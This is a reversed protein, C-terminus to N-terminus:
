QIHCVKFVISFMIHDPCINDSLRCKVHLLNVPCVKPLGPFTIMSVVGSYPHSRLTSRTFSPGVIRFCSPFIKRANEAAPVPRFITDSKQGCIFICIQHIPIMSLSRIRNKCGCVYRSFVSPVCSM